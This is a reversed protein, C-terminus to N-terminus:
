QLVIARNVAPDIQLQLFLLTDLWLTLRELNQCMGHSGKWPKCSFVDAGSKMLEAECPDTGSSTLFLSVQQSCTILNWKDETEQYTHKSFSIVM